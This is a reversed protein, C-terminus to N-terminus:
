KCLANDLFDIMSKNERISRYDHYFFANDTHMNKEFFADTKEKKSQDLHKIDSM